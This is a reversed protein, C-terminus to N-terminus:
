MPSTTPRDYVWGREALADNLHSYVGSRANEMTKMVGPGYGATTDQLTQVPDPLPIPRDPGAVIDINWIL